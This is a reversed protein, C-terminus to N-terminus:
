FVPVIEVLTETFNIYSRYINIVQNFVENKSSANLLNQIMDNNMYKKELCYSKNDIYINVYLSDEVVNFYEDSDDIKDIKGIEDIKNIENIEVVEEIKVIEVAGSYFNIDYGEKPTVCWLDMGYADYGDKSECIDCILEAIKRDTTMCFFHNDAIIMNPNIIIKAIVTEKTSVTVNFTKM